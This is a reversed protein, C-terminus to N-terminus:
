HQEDKEKQTRYIVLNRGQFPLRTTTARLPGHVMTSSPRWAGKERLYAVLDAYTRVREKKSEKKEEEMEEKEEGGLGDGTDGDPTFRRGPFLHPFVCCPVVAFPIRERIAYDVINDTAEDPHMGLVLSPLSGCGSGSGLREGVGVVGVGVGGEVVGPGSEKRSPEARVWTMRRIRVTASRTASAADNTMKSIVSNNSAPLRIGTDSEPVPVPDIPPSPPSPDLHHDPHPIISPASEEGVEEEDWARALYHPVKDWMEPRFEAQIQPLVTENADLHYRKKLDKRQQKTFKAPRPEILTCKVGHEFILAYTIEGRGGAVDLVGGGANLADTGFTSM